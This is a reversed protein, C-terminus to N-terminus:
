CPESNRNLYGLRQSIQAATQKVARIYEKEIKERTMRFAPGSISIAALAKSNEDFIPAAVCKVDDFLEVDDIAYGNEKVRALHRRLEEKSTITNATHRVLEVTRFYEELEQADLHALLVKGLASGHADTPVDRIVRIGIPHTSEITDINMVKFKNLFGIHVTEKCSVALETLLPIAIKHLDVQSMYVRGLQYLQHTLRYERTKPDKELFGGEELSSLLATVTSKNLGLKKSLEVNTYTPKEITFSDLIKIARLVSNISYRNKRLIKEM